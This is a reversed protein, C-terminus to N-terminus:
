LKVNWSRFDDGTQEIGEMRKHVGLRGPKRKATAGM